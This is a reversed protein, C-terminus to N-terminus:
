LGPPFGLHRPSPNKFSPIIYYNIKADRYSRSYVTGVSSSSVESMLHSCWSVQHIMRTEERDWKGLRLLKQPISCYFRFSLTLVTSVLPMLQQKGCTHSKWALSNELARHVGVSHGALYNLKSVWLELTTYVGSTWPKTACSQERSWIGTPRRSRPYKQCVPQLNPCGVIGQEPVLKSSCIM